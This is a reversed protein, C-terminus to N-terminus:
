NKHIKPYYRLSPHTHLNHPLTITVLSINYDGLKEINMLYLIVSQSIKVVVNINKKFHKVLPRRNISKSSILMKSLSMEGTKLILHIQHM